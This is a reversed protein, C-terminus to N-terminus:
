AGGRQLRLGGVLLALGSRAALVALGAWPSVPLASLVSTGQISLGATSPGVREILRQWDPNGAVHAALPFLYLLGLMTATATATAAAADRLAVAVGTGLLNILAVYVVSGLAARLTTSAGLSLPGHHVAGFGRTDPLARAVLLERPKAPSPWSYRPM